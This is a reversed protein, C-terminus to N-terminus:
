EEIKIQNADSVVIQPKGNYKKIVGIVEITKGEYKSVDGVAKMDKAFIVATFPNNPFKDGIDLIIVKDTTKVQFIKGVVTDQQAIYNKADEAKIKHQAFVTSGMFLLLAFNLPILIKM